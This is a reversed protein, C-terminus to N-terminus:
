RVRIWRGDMASDNRQQHNMRPSRPSDHRASAGTALWVLDRTLDLGRHEPRWRLLMLNRHSAKDTALGVLAGGYAFLSLLCEDDGAVESDISPPVIRCELRHLGGTVGLGIMKLWGEKLVWLMYFHDPSRSALWDNEAASFYGHALRQTNRALEVREIDVGVRGVDCLACVVVNGSHAISVAPGGDCRPKGNSSVLLSQSAAPAGTSWELLSRLLFRGAVFEKRRRPAAIGNLRLREEPSLSEPSTPLDAVRAVAIM